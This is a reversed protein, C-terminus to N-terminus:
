AFTQEDHSRRIRARRNSVFKRILDNRSEIVSGPEASGTAGLWKLRPYIMAIDHFNLHKTGSFTETTVDGTDRVALSNRNIDRNVESYLMLYRGHIPEDRLMGYIGGDINAVCEAGAGRRKAYETAVAGGLSLGLVGVLEANASGDLGPVAGLVSQVNELVFEIDACRASVIQNTNSALGYYRKWLAPQQAADSAKISRELKKQEEKENESQARQLARLEALQEKHQLSVVTYGYSALHEMLTTNESAFSIMGHSYILVQSPGAIASYQAGRFSNTKVKM